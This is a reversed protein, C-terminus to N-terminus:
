LLSLFSGCIFRLVVLPQSALLLSLRPQRDDSRDGRYRCRLRDFGGDELTLTMRLSRPDPRRHWVVHQGGLDKPAEVQETFIRALWPSLTVIGLADDQALPLYAAFSWTPLVAALCM